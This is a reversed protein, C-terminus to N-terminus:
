LKLGSTRAAAITRTALERAEEAKGAPRDSGADAGLQIKKVAAMRTGLGGRPQGNAAAELLAVAQAAPMGTGFALEAALAVNGAAAPSAFIAACRAREAARIRKAQKGEKKDDEDDDDAEPEDSDPEKREDDDDEASTDKEEEEDEAKKAADKDKQDKDDEALARGFGALHAFRSLRGGAANRLTM